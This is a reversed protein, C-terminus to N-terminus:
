SRDTPLGRRTIRLTSYMPTSTACRNWAFRLLHAHHRLLSWPQLERDPRPRSHTVRRGSQKGLRDNLDRRPSPSFHRWSPSPTARYLAPRIPRAGAMNRNNEATKAKSAETTAGAIAWSAGRLLSHRAIDLAGGRAVGTLRRWAAAVVLSTAM